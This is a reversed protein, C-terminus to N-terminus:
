GWLVINEGFGPWIFTGKEDKRFWNVHFIPLTAALRKGVTIWHRFYEGM